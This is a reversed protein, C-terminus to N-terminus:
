DGAPVQPFSSSILRGCGLARLRVVGVRSVRQDCVCKGDYEGVGAEVFNGDLKLGAVAKEWEAETPLRACMRRGFARFMEFARLM